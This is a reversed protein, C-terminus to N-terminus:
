SRIVLVHVVRGVRAMREVGPINGVKCSLRVHTPLM